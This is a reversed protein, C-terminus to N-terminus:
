RSEPRRRQESSARRSGSRRCPRPRETRRPRPLRQDGVVAQRTVGGREHGREVPRSLPDRRQDDGGLDPVVERRRCLWARHEHVDVERDGRRPRPGRVHDGVQRPPLASDHQEAPMEVRNRVPGADVVVARARREDELDGALGPPEVKPRLVAQSEREPTALLEPEETRRAVRLAEARLLPARIRSTRLKSM